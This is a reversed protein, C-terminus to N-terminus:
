STGGKFHPSGTIHLYVFVSVVKIKVTLVQNLIHLVCLIEAISRTEERLREGNLFLMRSEKAEYLGEPDLLVTCSRSSVFLTKM